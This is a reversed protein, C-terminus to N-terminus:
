GKDNNSLRKPASSGILLVSVHNRDLKKFTRAFTKNFSDEDGFHVQMLTLNKGSTSYNLDFCEVCTSLLQGLLFAILV